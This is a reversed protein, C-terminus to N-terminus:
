PFISRGISRQPRYPATLNGGIAQFDAELQSWDFGSPAKQKARNILDLSLVTYLAGGEAMTPYYPLASWVLTGVMGWTSIPIGDVNYGMGIFYHGNSPDPQGEVRWIFGSESPPPDVWADPLEVAFGVNEFLYVSQMLEEPNAANVLMSGTYRHPNSSGPFFGTQTLYNVATEPDCGNDTSPDGPVYGGIASYLAIIQASTLLLPSGDSANGTLVGLNHANGAIVCDGLTDNLYMQDLSKLSPGLYGMTKGPPPPLSKLMYNAMRLRPSHAIPRRCGFKFTQKTEPHIVTKVPM